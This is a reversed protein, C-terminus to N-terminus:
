CPAAPAAECHKCGAHANTHCVLPVAEMCHELSAILLHQADVMALILFGVSRMIDSMIGMSTALAPTVTFTVAELPAGVGLGQAAGKRPGNLGM